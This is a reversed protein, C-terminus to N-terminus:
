RLYDTQLDYCVKGAPHQNIALYTPYRDDSRDYSSYDSRSGSKEDYTACLQYHFVPDDEYEPTMIMRLDQLSAGSQKNLQEKPHYSVLGKRIIQDVEDSEYSYYEDLKSESLSSPLEKQDQAYEKIASAIQPLGARILRDNKTRQAYAIPGLIGLSSIILTAVLMTIWFAKRVHVIKAPSLARLLTIGYLFTLTVSTILTVTAGESGGSILMNVVAFVAVILSGIGCLAFIVAHIVMIVMAAGTKHRPEFRSYIVDCIISIVFLVIVAAMPYALFDSSSADYESTPKQIFYQVSLATLWYLAVLTWGWFAYTLWQLIVIGPTNVSKLVQASDAPTSQTQVSPQYTTAHTFTRESAGSLSDDKTNGDKMSADREDNPM